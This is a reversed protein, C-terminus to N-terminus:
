FENAGTRLSHHERPPGLLQIPQGHHTEVGQVTKAQALIVRGPRGPGEVPFAVDQFGPASSRTIASATSPLVTYAAPLKKVTTPWDCRPMAAMLAVVPLTSGPM